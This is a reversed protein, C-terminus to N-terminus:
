VFRKVTGPNLNAMPAQFIPKGSGAVIQAMLGGFSHGVVAPKKNLAGILQAIHDAVQGVGKGALAQPNARAEAVTAPDDPWDAAITAYGGGRLPEGM